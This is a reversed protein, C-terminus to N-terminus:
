GFISFTREVNDNRVQEIGQIMQNIASQETELDTMRTDIRTEKENIISKQYEYESLAENAISNDNVSFVNTFNSAINTTYSNEWELEGTESDVEQDREVTTLMYLNNQLMQNLYETDSVKSNYTWGKDAISSFITDYFNIQSEQEATLLTNKASNSNNYNELAENYSTEWEAHEKQWTKYKDSNIDNWTYMDTGYSSQSVTGNLSGYSGLIEDMMKSVDLTYGRSNKTIPLYDYSVDENSSITGSYNTYFTDCASKINEPDDVYAGLSSSINNLQQQLTSLAATGKGLDITGDLDIVDAINSLFSDKSGSKTPKKPESDEIKWLTQLNKNTTDEYSNLNEIDEAPIGTLEALVETRVSEWDGGAKGDESIMKAYKQYKSDVVVKGSTDTLLYPTQQNMNSPSMLNQYSLDIYTVGSNNSWKLVKSNLADNYAKSVKSMERTLSMKQLSLSSLERGITNKRSTLQLIRAQSAAMGM